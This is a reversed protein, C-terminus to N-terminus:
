RLKKVIGMIMRNIENIRDAIIEKESVKLFGLKEALIIQTELEACSGLAILLFKIYEKRYFRMYGEAINSPISVSARRIQSILGYLEERPFDKTTKYIEVVLDISKQWVILDKYNKIKNSEM